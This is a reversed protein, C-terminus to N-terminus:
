GFRDDEKVLVVAAVRMYDIRNFVITEVAFLVEVMKSASSFIGDPKWDDALAFPNENCCVCPNACISKLLLCDSSVLYPHEVKGPVIEGAM